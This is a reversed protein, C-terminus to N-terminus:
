SVPVSSQRWGLDLLDLANYQLKYYILVLNSTVVIHVNTGLLHELKRGVLVLRSVKDQLRMKTSLERLPVYPPALLHHLSRGIRCAFEIYLYRKRVM